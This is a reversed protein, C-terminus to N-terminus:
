YTFREVRAHLDASLSTLDAVQSSVEGLVTVAHAASGAVGTINAAIEGSGTAAEAVSRSM